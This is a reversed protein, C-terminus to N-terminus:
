FLRASGVFAGAYKYGHPCFAAIRIDNEANYFASLCGKAYPRSRSFIMEDGREIRMGAYEEDKRAVVSFCKEHEFISRLKDFPFSRAQREPMGLDPLDPQAASREIAEIHQVIAPPLRHQGNTINFGFGSLMKRSFDSSLRKTLRLRMYKKAPQKGYSSDDEKCPIDKETIKCKYRIGCVPRTLYIYATDGVEVNMEQPWTIETWSKFAKDIDYLEPKCYVSITM